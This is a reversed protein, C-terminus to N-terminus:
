CEVGEVLLQVIVLVCDITMHQGQCNIKLVMGNFGAVQHRWFCAVRQLWGV